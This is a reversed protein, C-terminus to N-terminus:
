ASKLTDLILSRVFTSVKMGKTKAFNRLAAKEDNAVAVSVIKKNPFILARGM